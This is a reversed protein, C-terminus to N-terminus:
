RWLDGRPGRATGDPGRDAALPVLLDAVAGGLMGSAGTVLVRRTM